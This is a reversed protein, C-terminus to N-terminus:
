ENSALNTNYELYHTLLLLNYLLSHNKCLILLLVAGLVEFACFTNQSTSNQYVRNQIVALIGPRRISQTGHCKWLVSSMLCTVDITEIHEM